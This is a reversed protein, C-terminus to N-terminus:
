RNKSTIAPVLACTVRSHYGWQVFMGLDINDDFLQYMGQAARDDTLDMMWLDQSADAMRAGVDPLVWDAVLLRSYGKRMAGRIVELIKLGPGDTWDHFIASLFYFAAGHVPEPTFMDHAQYEIGPFPNSSAHEVVHPLDQVIARGPISPFKQKILHTQHGMGGGIDVIFVDQATLKLDATKTDFPFCEAPIGRAEHSITMGRNFAENLAPEAELCKWFPKGFTSAHPGTGNSSPEAFSTNALYLPLKCLVATVTDTSHNFMDVMGPHLLTAMVPTSAYTQHGVERALKSATLVRMIRVIVSKDGGCKEALEDATVSEQQNLVDTWGGAIAVRLAASACPGELVIRVAIDIPTQCANTMDMAATSIEYRDEQTATGANLYEQALAQAAQIAQLVDERSTTKSGM